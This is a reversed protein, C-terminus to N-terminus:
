GIMRRFEAETVIKVGLSEAKTLKSGAEEGALLCTTKKSISSSVKGGHKRILEAITEREESLTGTIVWTTGALPAGAAPVHRPDLDGMNLGAARLREILARNHDDQFFAFISAGMIEGVDPVRQLEDEGANMMPEITHFHRALNRAGTAGVHLIGLGFVLRWLPRTKSEAIGTLLNEISKAGTRPIQGLGEATLKYLDSVDRALNHEVLQEVMAEGLGEIDM